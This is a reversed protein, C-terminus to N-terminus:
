STWATERHVTWRDPVGRQWAPRRGAALCRRRGAWRSLLHDVRGPGRRGVRAAALMQQAAVLVSLDGRVRIRGANLAETPSLEGQAM